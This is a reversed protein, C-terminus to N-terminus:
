WSFNLLNKKEGQFRKREGSSYEGRKRINGKLRGRCSTGKKEGWSSELSRPVEISEGGMSSSLLAYKKKVRERIYEGGKNPKNERKAHTPDGGCGYVRPM